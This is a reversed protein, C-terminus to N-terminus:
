ASKRDFPRIQEPLLAVEATTRGEADAFETEYAVTPQDFELVIAGVDGAKLGEEPLDVLLVVADGVKFKAM